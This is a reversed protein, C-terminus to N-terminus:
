AKGTFDHEGQGERRPVIGTHRQFREVAVDVFGPDLEMAWCTRELDHCAILTSGSGAFPDYFTRAMETTEIIQVLLDVPKQTPHLLNGTRKAQVVNGHGPAKKDWVVKGRQAFAVLEHQTRWGQGMGPTGKDWVLMNRVGFGQSELTDSVTIWMRWDTFVYAMSARCSALGAQLLATVGRTSLQDNPIRPRVVGRARKTGVGGQARGAEQFGGSNYPPDTLICDPVKSELLRRVAVEDRVDACILRHPGLMWVDGLRTVPQEPKEPAADPDSTQTRRQRRLRALLRDLDQTKYGTGQLNGNLRKLLAALADQRTTALEPSRNDVLNIRTATQEDVDVLSALVQDYGELRHAEVTGNGALIVWPKTRTNVVVARVVRNERLSDRIADLDHDKANGPFHVLESIPVLRTDTVAVPPAGGQRLGTDGMGRMM